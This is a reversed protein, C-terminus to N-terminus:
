KRTSSSKEVKILIGADVCFLQLIEGERIDFYKRYEKPIVVRGLDDLKKCICFEM